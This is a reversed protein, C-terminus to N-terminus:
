TWGRHDPHAGMFHVLSCSTTLRLRGGSRGSSGGMPVTTTQRTKPNPPLGLGKTCESAAENAARVM